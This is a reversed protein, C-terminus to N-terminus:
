PLTGFVRDGADGLGPLIYGVDNLERDIAALTIPVDRHAERVRDLGEPAALVGIFHIAHCGRAKLLDLAAVASGGTALMPDCLLVPGEAIDAPLKEYYSVPELKEEDRAMGLHGVQADPLLRIMGATLGLGARLIPVLTVTQRLRPSDFAELPTEISADIMPVGRIAEYCLLTGLTEMAQRFRIPPTRKDRLDTLMHQVLPHEIVHITPDHM